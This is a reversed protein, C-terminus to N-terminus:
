EKRHFARGAGRTWWARSRRSLGKGVCLAERDLVPPQLGPLQVHTCSGLVGLGLPLTGLCFHALHSRVTVFFFYVTYPSWFPSRVGTRSILSDGVLVALFPSAAEVTADAGPLTMTAPPSFHPLPPPLLSPPESSPAHHTPPSPPRTLQHHFRPKNISSILSM